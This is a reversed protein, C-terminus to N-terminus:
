FVYLRDSCPTYRRNVKIGIFINLGNKSCIQLNKLSDSLNCNLTRFQRFLQSFFIKYRAPIITRRAGALVADKDASGAGSVQGDGIKVKTVKM